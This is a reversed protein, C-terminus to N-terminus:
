SFLTPADVFSLVVDGDAAVTLPAGLIPDLPVPLFISVAGAPSPIAMLWAVAAGTVMGRLGTMAQRWCEDRRRRLFRIVAAISAMRAPPMPEAPISSASRSM